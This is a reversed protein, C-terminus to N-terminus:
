VIKKNMLVNQLLNCGLVNEAILDGIFMFYYCFLKCCSDRSTLKLNISLQSLPCKHRLVLPLVCVCMSQTDLTRSLHKGKM